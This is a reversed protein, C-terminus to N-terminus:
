TDVIIEIIAQLLCVFIKLVNLFLTRWEQSKESMKFTKQDTSSIQYPDYQFFSLNQEKRHEARPFGQGAFCM